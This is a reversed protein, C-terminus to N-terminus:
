ISSTNCCKGNKTICSECFDLYCKPCKYWTDNWTDSESKIATCGYTGCLITEYSLLGICAKLDEIAKLDEKTIANISKKNNNQENNNQEYYRNREKTATTEKTEVQKELLNAINKTNEAISALSTAISPINHTMTDNMMGLIDAFSQNGHLLLDYRHFSMITPIVRM